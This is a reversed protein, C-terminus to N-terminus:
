TDELYFCVSMCSFTLKRQRTKMSAYQIWLTPSGAKPLTPTQACVWRPQPARISPPTSNLWTKKVRFQCLCIRFPRLQQQCRSFFFYIYLAKVSECVM